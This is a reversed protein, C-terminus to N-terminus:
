KTIRGGETGMQRNHARYAHRDLDLSEEGIMEHDEFRQGCSIYQYQEETEENEMVCLERVLIM